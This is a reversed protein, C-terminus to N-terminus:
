DNYVFYGKEARLQTFDEYLMDKLKGKAAIDEESRNDKSYGDGQSWAM